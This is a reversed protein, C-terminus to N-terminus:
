GVERLDGFKEEKHIRGSGHSAEAVSVFKGAILNGEDTEKTREGDGESDRKSVVAHYTGCDLYQTGLDVDRLFHFSSRRDRGGDGHRPIRVDDTRLGAQAM